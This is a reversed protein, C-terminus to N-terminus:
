GYLRNSATRKVRRLERGPYTKRLDDLTRYAIGGSRYWLIGDPGREALYPVPKPADM